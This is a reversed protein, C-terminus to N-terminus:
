STYLKITFRRESVSFVPPDTGGAGVCLLYYNTFLLYSSFISFITKFNLHM